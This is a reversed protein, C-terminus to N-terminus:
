TSVKTRPKNKQVAHIMRVPMAGRNSTPTTPDNTAPTQHGSITERALRLKFSTRKFSSGLVGPKIQLVDELDAVRLPLVQRGQAVASGRPRIQLAMLSPRFVNKLTEGRRHMGMLAAKSAASRMLTEEGLRHATSNRGIHKDHINYVGSGPEQDFDRQLHRTRPSRKQAYSPLVVHLQYNNHSTADTTGRQLDGRMKLRQRYAALLGANEPQPSAPLDLKIERINKTMLGAGM